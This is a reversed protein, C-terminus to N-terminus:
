RKTIGKTNQQTECRNDYTHKNSVDSQTIIGFEGNAMAVRSPESISSSYGGPIYLFGQFM